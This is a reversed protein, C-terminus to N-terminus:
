IALQITLTEHGNVKQKLYSIINNINEHGNVKQKLYSIIRYTYETTNEPKQYHKKKRGM